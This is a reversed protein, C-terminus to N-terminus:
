RDGLRLDCGEFEEIFRWGFAMSPTLTGPKTEGRAVRMVCELATDSTLAYGSPTTLTAEVGRGGATEV